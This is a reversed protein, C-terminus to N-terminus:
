GSDTRGARDAEYTGAPADERTDPAGAVSWPAGLLDQEVDGVLILYTRRRFVDPLQVAV